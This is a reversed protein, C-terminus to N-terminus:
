RRQFREEQLAEELLEFFRRELESEGEGRVRETVEPNLAPIGRISGDWMPRISDLQPNHLLPDNSTFSDASEIPIQVQDRNPQSENLETPAISHVPHLENLPEGQALAEGRDARHSWDNLPNLPNLSHSQNMRDNMRNNMRDNMQNNMRENMRNNMRDNMRNNNVRGNWENRRGNWNVMRNERRENWSNMGNGEGGWEGESWRIAELVVDMVEELVSNFRIGTSELFAIAQLM